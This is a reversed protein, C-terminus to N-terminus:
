KINFNLDKVLLAGRNHLYKFDINCDLFEGCGDNNINTTIHKSMVFMVAEALEEELIDKNFM